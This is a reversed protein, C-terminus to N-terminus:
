LVNDLVADLHTKFIELSPSEMIERPLRNWDETVRVRFFNKSKNSHFKRHELKHENGRTRDSPVVSFLKAGDDKLGGKLHKYVYILDGRLRRKELSFLGLERLREEYPLHELGKTMKTARHQVRELLERDRKFQPAWFQVCYELQPRVLASYLPLIVERSRSAVSKGICGLIGNASKAVLACQQSMSLKSDVLVGLDKEESTSELLDVGLRYQHRPNKRGLHLVRCKDKNFRMLNKEAWSELRNLDCQITACGEPTNALGGPKTDNTFKSLICETGEDLDNIFINFLVPSLILGQPVSSTIPRWSSGAGNIVVRQTRDSHLAYYLPLIVERSRRTVSKKICGLIDNAKKAVLACQQSMTM